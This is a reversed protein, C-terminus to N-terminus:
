KGQKSPKKATGSRNEVPTAGPTARGPDVADEAPVGPPFNGKTTPSNPDVPIGMLSRRGKDGAAQRNTEREAEGTEKEFSRQMADKGSGPERDPKHSTM